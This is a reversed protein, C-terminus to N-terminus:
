SESILSHVADFAFHAIVGGGSQRQSADLCPELEPQLSSVACQLHVPDHNERAFASTRLRYSM